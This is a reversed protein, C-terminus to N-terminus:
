SVAKFDSALLQVNMLPHVRGILISKLVAQKDNVLIPRVFAPELRQWSPLGSILDIRKGLSCLAEGVYLQQRSRSAIVYVGPQDYKTWDYGSIPRSRPLDRSLWEQFHDKALKRADKARKRLALAAWRYQFSSFGPSFSEALEDFRAALNPDCLIDDLTTGYEVNLQWLAVESAFSFPDMESITLRRTRKGLHPLKGAKRIRLLARNWEPPAGPLGNKKCAACFEENLATDALMTDVSSGHHSARYADIIGKVVGEPQPKRPRRQGSRVTRNVTTLTPATSWVKPRPRTPPASTRPDAAGDLSQGVSTKKLRARIKEAYDNSLEFGIWQRGLKKAVALTTGSGTFPDLVVEMPNSCCRIIRGLLQEPM